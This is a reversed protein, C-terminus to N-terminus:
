GLKDKLIEKTLNPNAKGKTEKMVQGVFYDFLNTKGNKYGVGSDILKKDTTQIDKEILSCVRKSESSIIESIGLSENISYNIDTQIIEFIKYIGM